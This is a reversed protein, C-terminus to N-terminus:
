HKRYIIAGSLPRIKKNLGKNKHLALIHLEQPFRLTAALQKVRAATTEDSTLQYWATNETFGLLFCPKEAFLTVVKRVLVAEKIWAIAGLQATLASIENANLGHPAYADRDRFTARERKAEETLDVHGLYRRRYTEAETERGQRMLYGYMIQCGAFVSRPEKAMAEELLAVGAADDKELLLRGLAFGAILDNPKQRLMEQYLAIAAESGRFEEIWEARQLAESETLPQRLAKEELEALGQQMKRANEFRMKWLPTVKQQWNRNLRDTFAQRTPGFYREAATEAVPPPLARPAANAATAGGIAALRDPLAPHASKQNPAAGIATLRDTLAPHTDDYGTKERLADDLWLAADGPEAGQRLYRTMDSIPADPPLPQQNVLENVAPWYRESLLRAAIHISLLADATNKAGAFQAACRDAEYEDARALAFSYASFFPAYWDFFVTFIQSASSSSDLSQMLQNWTQRVRYIWGAFRSHNGSLHGIEHALVSQFQEPSLAEMLPLGLILYNRQWGLIGLRPSQLVGANFDTDLLVHHFRPARLKSTLDDLMAFLRPANQRDLPLGEDPPPMRVWLARFIIGCFILAFLEVKIGVGSFHGSILAYGMGLALALAFILIVLVYVYGLAALMGVQCRYLAPNRRAYVELNKVMTEYKEIREQTSTTQKRAM